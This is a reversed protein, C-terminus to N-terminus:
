DLLRTYYQDVRKWWQDKADQFELGDIVFTNCELQRDVMFIVGKNIKTGHVKDHFEAYAALQHFYDVIDKRNRMKKANKHDMIAPSGEHLGILDCTGAVLGPYYLPTEIGWVEDVLPLCKTIIQDAMNRSLIRMPASGQPRDIGMIHNEIHTHVLSGLDSGYKSQQDAAKDGIRKRWEVLFSKDSTASLVSTVSILPQNTEPCTYYRIGDDHTVRDIEPYDYRQVINM